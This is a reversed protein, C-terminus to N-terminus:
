IRGKRFAFAYTGGKNNSAGCWTGTCSENLKIERWGSGWSRELKWSSIGETFEFPTNRGWPDYEMPYIFTDNNAIFKVETICPDSITGACVMDGSHFLITIYGFAQLYIFLLVVASSATIGAGIAYKKVSEWYIRNIKNVM